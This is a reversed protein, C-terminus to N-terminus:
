RNRRAAPRTLSTHTPSVLDPPLPLSPAHSHTCHRHRVHECSTRHSSRTGRAHRRPRSARPLPSDGPVARRAPLWRSVPRWNRWLDTGGGATAQYRLSGGPAYQVTTDSDSRASGGNWLISPREYRVNASGRTAYDHCPREATACRAEYASSGHWSSWGPPRRHPCWM